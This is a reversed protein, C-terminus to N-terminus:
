VKDDIKCINWLEAGLDPMFEIMKDLGEIHSSNIIGHDILACMQDHSFPKVFYTGSELVKFNNRTLLENFSKIDYVQNRKFLHDHESKQYINEITESKCAWLRHFSRANPVFSYVLTNRSCLKQVAKLVLDPDTVEHLFGGIVIFDFTDLQLDDTVNEILDNIIVINSIGKSMSLAMNFFKEGPELVTMKEFDEIYTFLPDPGCGIELFRRHSYQKLLKLIHKRRYERLMDEFPLDIYNKEYNNRESLSSKDSDDLMIEKEADTFSRILRAPCGGIISFAPFSKNVFSHAAVICYEGLVVDPMIISSAGIWCDNGISISGTMIPFLRLMGPSANPGSDVMINVFQSISVNDGIKLKAAFGNLVSSMGVYVNEGLELQNDPGGFISCRKAIRVNNKIVVNNISTSPDIEVNSGLTINAFKM